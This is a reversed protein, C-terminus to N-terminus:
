IGLAHGAAVMAVLMAGYLLETIGVRKASVPRSHLGAAARVLLVALAVLALLSALDQLVLILALVCAVLHTFIIIGSAAKEGRAARL